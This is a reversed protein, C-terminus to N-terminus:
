RERNQGRRGRMEDRLKQFRQWQDPTLV